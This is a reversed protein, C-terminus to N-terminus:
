LDAFAPEQRRARLLEFTTLDRRILIAGVGLRNFEKVNRIIIGQKCSPMAVYSREAFIRYAGAQGLAGKWDSLKMEVAVRVTGGRVGIVDPIRWCIRYENLPELGESRIWDNVPDRLEEERNM